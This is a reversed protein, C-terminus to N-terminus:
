PDLADRLFLKAGQANVQFGWREHGWLPAETTYAFVFPSGARSPDYAVFDLQRTETMLVHPMEVCGGLPEKDEFLRLCRRYSNSVQTGEILVLPDKLGKVQVPSAFDVKMQLRLPDAERALAAGDQDDPLIPFAGEKLDSVNTKRIAFDLKKYVSEGVENKLPTFLAQSVDYVTGPKLLIAVIPAGVKLFAAKRGAVKWALTRSPRNKSCSAGFTWSSKGVAFEAIGKSGVILLGMGEAVKSGKKGGPSRDVVLWRGGEPYVPFIGSSSKLPKAIPAKSPEPPIFQDPPPTPSAFSGIQIDGKEEPAKPAAKGKKKKSAKPAEDKDFSMVGTGSALAPLLLAALLAALTRKM